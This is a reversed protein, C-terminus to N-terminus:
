KLVVRKLYDILREPSGGTIAALAGIGLGVLGAQDVTVQGAMVSQGGVRVIVAVKNSDPAYPIFADYLGDPRPFAILFMGPNEAM